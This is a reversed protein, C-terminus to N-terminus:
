TAHQDTTHGQSDELYFRNGVNRLLRSEFSVDASVNIDLIESGAAADQHQHGDHQEAYEGLHSM